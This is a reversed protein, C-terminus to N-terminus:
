VIVGLERARVIAQTRSRVGLKANIRRAHTKVTHLSIHLRDAISQNSLGNAILELVSRERDSIPEHMPTAEGSGSPELEFLPYLRDLGEEAMLEALRTHEFRAQLEARFDLIPSVVHAESAARATTRLLALGHGSGSDFRRITEMLQHYLPIQPFASLNLRDGVTRFPRFGHRGQQRAFRLKSAMLMGPFLANMERRASAPMLSLRRMANAAESTNDADLALGCHLLSPLASWVSELPLKLIGRELRSLGRIAVDEVSRARAVFGRLVGELVTEPGADNTAVADDEPGLCAIAETLEGRHWHQLALNLRLRRVQETTGIGAGQSAVTVLPHADGNDLTGNDAREPSLAEGNVPTSGTSWSSSMPRLDNPEM